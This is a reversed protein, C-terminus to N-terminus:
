ARNNGYGNKIQSQATIPTSEQYNVIGFSYNRGTVGDPLGTL